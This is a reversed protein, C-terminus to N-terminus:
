KKKKSKSDRFEDLYILSNSLKCLSQFLAVIETRTLSFKKGGVVPVSEWQDSFFLINLATAIGTTQLKGWIKCRECGVCDMIKTINRFKVHLEEKLHCADGSFMQSEDFTSPCMQTSKVLDLIFHKM